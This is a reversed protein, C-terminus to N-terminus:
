RYGQADLQPPPRSSHLRVVEREEWPLRGRWGPHFDGRRLVRSGTLERGQAAHGGASRSRRRGGCRRPARRDGGGTCAPDAGSEDAEVRDPCPGRAQADARAPGAAARAARAPGLGRWSPHFSATGDELFRVAASVTVLAPSIEIDVRGGGGESLPSAEQCHAFCCGAPAAAAGGAAPAARAASPARM